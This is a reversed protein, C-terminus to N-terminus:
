CLYAKKITKKKKKKKRIPKGPSALPLYGAQWHLLSLLPLNSKHTPFIGQFPCPLGSWYEQRILGMSLPAQHAVTWLTVFLRVYSFLSLMCAYRKYLSDDFRRYPLFLFLCTVSHLALKKWVLEQKKLDQNTNTKGPSM